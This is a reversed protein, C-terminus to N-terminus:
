VNDYKSSLHMFKYLVIFVLLHLAMLYLGGAIRTMRNGVILTLVQVLLREGRPLRMLRKERESIKFTEFPSLSVEEMYAPMYRMEIVDDESSAHRMSQWYKKQELLKINDTYLTDCKRTKDGVEERLSDREAELTLVRARLHDRQQRTIAM